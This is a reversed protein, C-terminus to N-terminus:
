DHSVLVPLILKDFRRGMVYQQWSLITNMLYMHTEWDFHFMLCFLFSSKKIMGDYKYAIKVMLVTFASGPLRVVVLIINACYLFDVKLPESM